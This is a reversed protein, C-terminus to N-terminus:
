SMEELYKKSSVDMAIFYVVVEILKKLDQLDKDGWKRVYHAEDNGIWTARKAMEKINYNELKNICQGLPMILIADQNENDIFILYDKILFELAKRYGIGSILSLGTEEAYLSQSYIEVFNPSVDKIEPNFEKGKPIIPGHKDLIFTGSSSNRTFYGIILSNCQNNTCQFASEMLLSLHDGKVFQGAIFVPNVNKHCLGCKDPFSDVTVNQRNGNITIFIPIAM